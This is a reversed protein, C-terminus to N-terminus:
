NLWVVRCGFLIQVKGCLLVYQLILVIVVVVLLLILLLLVFFCFSSLLYRVGAMQRELIVIKPLNLLWYNLLIQIIYIWINNFEYTKKWLVKNSQWSGFRINVKNVVPWSLSMWCKELGSCYHMQSSLSWGNRKRWHVSFLQQNPYIGFVYSMINTPFVYVSFYTVLLGFDKFRRVNGCVTICPVRILIVSIASTLHM